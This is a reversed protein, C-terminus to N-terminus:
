KRNAKPKSAIQAVGRAVTRPWLAVVAVVAFLAFVRFRAEPGYLVRAITGRKRDQDKHHTGWARHLLRRPAPLRFKPVCDHPSCDYWGRRWREEQGGAKPPACGRNAPV